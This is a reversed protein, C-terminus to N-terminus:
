SHLTVGEGLLYDWSLGTKFAASAMQFRGPVTGLVGYSLYLAGPLFITNKTGEPSMQTGFSLSFVCPMVDTAKAGLLFYSDSSLAQLIRLGM